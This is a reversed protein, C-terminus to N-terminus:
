HDRPWEPNGSRVRMYRIHVNHGRRMTTRILSMSDLLQELALWVQCRSDSCSWRIKCRCIHCPSVYRASWARQIYSRDRTQLTLSLAQMQLMLKRFPARGTGADASACGIGARGTGAAANGAVAGIGPCAVGNGACRPMGLVKLLQQQRDIRKTVHQVANTIGKARYHSGIM